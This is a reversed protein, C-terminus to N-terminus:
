GEEGTLLPLEDESIVSLGYEAEAEREAPTGPLLAQDDGNM